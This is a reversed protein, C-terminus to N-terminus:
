YCDHPCSTTSETASDCHFDGCRGGTCAGCDAPCIACDEAAGCAGDGCFPAGAPRTTGPPHLPDCVAWCEDDACGAQGDNDYDVQASTCAEIAGNPRYQLLVTTATATSTSDLGSFSVAFLAASLVASRIMRM